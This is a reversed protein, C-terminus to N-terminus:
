REMLEYANDQTQQAQIAKQKQHYFYLAIGAAVAGIVLILILYNIGPALPCGAHGCWNYSQRSNLQTTEYFDDL